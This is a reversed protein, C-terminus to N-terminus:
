ETSVMGYFPQIVSFSCCPINEGSVVTSPQLSRLLVAVSCSIRFYLLNYVSTGTALFSGTKCCHLLVESISEAISAVYGENIIAKQITTRERTFFISNWNCLYIFTGSNCHQKHGKLPFQVSHTNKVVVEAHSWQLGPLKKPTLIATFFRTHLLLDALAGFHNQDFLVFAVLLENEKFSEVPMMHQM